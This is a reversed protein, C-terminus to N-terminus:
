STSKGRAIWGLKFANRAIMRENRGKWEGAVENFASGYDDALKVHEVIAEASAKPPLFEVLVRGRPHPPESWDFVIQLRTVNHLGLAECIKIGAKSDLEKVATAM